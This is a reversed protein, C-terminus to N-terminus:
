VITIDYITVNHLAGVKLHVSINHCTQQPLFISVTYCTSTLIINSNHRTQTVTCDSTVTMSRLPATACHRLPATHLVDPEFGLCYCRVKFLITETREATLILEQCYITTSIRTYINTRTVELM